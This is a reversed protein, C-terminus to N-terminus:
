FTYAARLAMTERKDLLLKPSNSESHTRQYEAVLTLHDTANWSLITRILEDDKQTGHMYVVFPEWRNQAFSMAATAGLWALVQSGREEEVWAGKTYAVTQDEWRDLHFETGLSTQEDNTWNFGLISQTLGTREVATGINTAPFNTHHALDARVLWSYAAYSTSAGYTEQMEEDPIIDDGDSLPKFRYSPVRPWHKFYYLKSDIGASLFGVRGGYEADTGVKREQSDDVGFGRISKPQPMVAPWPVVIGQLSMDGHRWEANIMGAPIKSAPDYYGRPHTPDRLNVVDLIPMLLNEGWTVEQWGTSLKVEDFSNELYGILKEVNAHSIGHYTERRESDIWLRYQLHLKAADGAESLSWERQQGFSVISDATEGAAIDHVYELGVSTSDIALVRGPILVILVWALSWVRMM